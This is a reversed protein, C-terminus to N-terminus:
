NAKTYPTFTGLSCSGSEIGTYLDVSRVILGRCIRSEFNQSVLANGANRSDCGGRTDNRYVLRRNVKYLIVDGIVETSYRGRFQAICSVPEGPTLGHLARTLKAENLQSQRNPTEPPPSAGGCAILALSALLLHRM